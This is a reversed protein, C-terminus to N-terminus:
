EEQFKPPIKLKSKCRSFMDSKYDVKSINWKSINPLSNLSSFGEFISSMDTINRIDWNPIDPLDTLSQCDKFM